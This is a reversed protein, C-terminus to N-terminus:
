PNRLRDRLADSTWLRDGEATAPYHKTLLGSLNPGATGEGAPGERLIARHCGGCREGFLTNTAGTATFRVRYTPQAASPESRNLLFAIVQEGQVATLGFRPMTEVPTLISAALAQQERQWVAHDLSTAFRNGEGDIRHCRRCSLMEVLRGGSVVAPSDPNRHEAAKGTILRAHALEARAAGADGRHCSVCTEAGTRHPAHCDVCRGAHTVPTSQRACAAPVLAVLGILVASRLM